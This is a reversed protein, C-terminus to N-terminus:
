PTGPETVGREPPATIRSGAVLGAEDRTVPVGTRGVENPGDDVGGLGADGGLLVLRAVSASGNRTSVPLGEAATFSRPGDAEPEGVIADGLRGDVADRESDTAEGVADLM